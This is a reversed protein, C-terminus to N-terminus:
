GSNYNNDAASNELPWAVGYPLLFATSGEYKLNWALLFKLSEIDFIMHLIARHDGSINGLHTTSNSPLNSIGTWNRAMIHM